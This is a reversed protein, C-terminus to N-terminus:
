KKSCAVTGMAGVRPGGPSMYPGCVQPFVNPQISCVAKFLLDRVQSFVGLYVAQTRSVFVAVLILLSPINTMNLHSALVSSLLVEVCRAKYM